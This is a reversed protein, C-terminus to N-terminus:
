IGGGMPPGMRQRIQKEADARQNTMLETAKATQDQDFTAVVAKSAEDYHDLAETVANRLGTQMMAARTRDQETMDKKGAIVKLEHVLSDVIKFTPANKDKTKNEADKLANVQADNLKLDKRKDILLKISSADELDRVRLTPGAADSRDFFDSKKTAGSSAGGGRQGAAISPLAFAFAILLARRIM